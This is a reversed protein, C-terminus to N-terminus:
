GHAFRLPIKQGRMVQAASRLLRSKEVIPVKRWILFAHSAQSLKTEIEESSHAKFSAIVKGNHPNVSEMILGGLGIM